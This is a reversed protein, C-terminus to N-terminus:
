NKSKVAELSPRFDQCSSFSHIRLAVEQFKDIILKDIILCHKEMKLQLFTLDMTERFDGLLQEVSHKPYVLSRRLYKNPGM